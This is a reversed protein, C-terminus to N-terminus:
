RSESVGTDDDGNAELTLTRECRVNIETLLFPLVTHRRKEAPCAGTDRAQIPPNVEEVAVIKV